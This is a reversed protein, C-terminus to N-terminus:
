VHARGIELLITNGDPKAHVTYEAGIMGNAGPRNEVLVTTGFKESLPGSLVRAMADHGGGPAFPILLRVPKSPYADAAPSPGSFVAVALLLATSISQPSM